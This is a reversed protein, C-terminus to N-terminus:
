LADQEMCPSSKRLLLVGQHLELLALLLELQLYLSSGSASIHPM